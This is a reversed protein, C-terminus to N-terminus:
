KFLRKYFYWNNEKIPEEIFKWVFPRITWYYYAELKM